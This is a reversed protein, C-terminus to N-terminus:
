LANKIMQSAARTDFNEFREKLDAMVTGIARGGAGALQKDAIIESVAAHLEAISAERPLFARLVEAEAREAAARIMESAADYITASQERKAVEKKVVALQQEDTLTHREKGATEAEGLAGLAGRIALLRREAAEKEDGAAAAARAKLADRQATELEQKISM